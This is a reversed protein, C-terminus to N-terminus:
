PIGGLDNGDAIDEVVDIVGKEHLFAVGDARDVVGHNVDQGTDVVEILGTEGGAGADTSVAIADDHLIHREIRVAIRDHHEILPSRRKHQAIRDHRPIRGVRPRVIQNAIRLHENAVGRRVGDAPDRPASRDRRCSRRAM